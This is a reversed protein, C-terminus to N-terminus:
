LEESWWNEHSTYGLRQLWPGFYEQATKADYKTYHNKWDGRIGKRLNKLQIAKGYPRKNGDKKLQARKADFSQRAIAAHIRSESPVPIGWQGFFRMVSLYPQELLNEYFITTTPILPRSWGDIFDRWKGIGVLPEKGNGMAYIAEAVTKRNWYHMVSVSVDRPDRIIHAIPSGDYMPVSFRWADPVMEDVLEQIPHLHLQKVVFDGTRDLGETAIPKANKHGTVPSDLIDAILRSLWTNGSKVYGVIYITQKNPM